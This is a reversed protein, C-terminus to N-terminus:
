FISGSTLVENLPPLKFDQGAMRKYARYLGTHSRWKLKKDAFKTPNIARIFNTLSNTNKNLPNEFIEKLYERLEKLFWYHFIHDEAKQISNERHFLYSFSFQEIIHKQYYNYLIDTLELVDAILNSAQNNFGLVGANWVPTDRPIKYDKNRLKVSYGKLPRYMKIDYLLNEFCHMYLNNGAINNFVEGVNKTFYTDSDLYLFNGQYTSLIEQLVKIKMRHIFAHPGMWDAIIKKDVTRYIINLHKLYPQFFDANDTYIIIILQTLDNHLGCSYISCITEYYLIPNTHAQYILYNKALPKTKDNDM